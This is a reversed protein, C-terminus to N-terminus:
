LRPAKRIKMRTDSKDPIPKVTDSPEPEQKGTEIPHTKEQGGLRSRLLTDAHYLSTGRYVQHGASDTVIYFPLRPVTLNRIQQSGAGGPVWAQKWTSSDRSVTEKWSASDPAFSVELIDLRRRKHGNRLSRIRSTLSDPKRSDNFILLGYSQLSPNFRITTDSGTHISINPVSNKVTVALQEGLLSAYSGILWTPRAEPQITNLLSDAQLEHGPTRVHNMLLMASAMSAPAAHIERAILANVETDSGHRFLSDNLATIRAYDSSVDDGTISLSSPDDIEMKVKIHGGNQGIASFLLRNDLSFVEVLTKRPLNTRMLVKGDVPHFSLRKVGRDSYIMELGKDGLGMIDCEILYEDSGGCSALLLFLLLTNLFKM